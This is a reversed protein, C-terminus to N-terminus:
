TLLNNRFLSIQGSFPRQAEPLTLEMPIYSDIGFISFELRGQWDKRYALIEPYKQHTSGLSSEKFLRLLQAMDM